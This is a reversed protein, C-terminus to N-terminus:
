CQVMLTNWCAQILSILFGLTVVDQITFMYM